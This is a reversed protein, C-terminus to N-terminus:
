RNLQRVVDKWIEKLWAEGEGEFALKKGRNYYQYFLEGDEEEVLIEKGESRDKISIYGNRSISRIGEEDANLRVKGRTEIMLGDVNIVSRSSGHDYQIWDDLVPAVPRVPRVPAVPRVPSVPAVPTIPAMPAIPAIPEIAPVPPVPPVPAVPQVPPVPPVPPVPSPPYVRTWSRRSRRSEKDKKEENQAQISTVSILLLLAVSLLRLTQKSNKM